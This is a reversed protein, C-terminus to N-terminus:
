SRCIYPAQRIFRDNEIIEMMAHAVSARHITRLLGPKTAQLVYEVTGYKNMIPSRVSTWELGSEALLRLHQESDVLIPKALVKLAMHFGRATLSPQEAPLWADTGTLTVIRKIGSRKMAPIIVAMGTSLIDKKATGWSGLASLVAEQEKVAIQVSKKDYVDTPIVTVGEPTVYEHPRHVAATVTHGRKVAEQVLLRGVKGSAGFVVIRM